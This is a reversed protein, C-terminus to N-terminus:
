TRRPTTRTSLTTKSKRVVSTKSTAPPAYMVRSVRRSSLASQSTLRQRLAKEVRDIKEVPDYVGELDVNLMQSVEKVFSKARQEPSQQRRERIKEEQDDGMSLPEVELSYVLGLAEHVSCIKSHLAAVEEMLRALRDRFFYAAEILSVIGGCVAKMQTKMRTMEPTGTATSPLMGLFNEHIDRSMLIVQNQLQGLQRKDFGHESEKVFIDYVQRYVSTAKHKLYNSSEYVVDKYYTRKVFLQSIHSIDESLQTFYVQLQHLHPLVKAQALKNLGSVLIEWSSLLRSSYRLMAASKRMTQTRRSANFHHNAQLVFPEFAAKFELFNRCLYSGTIETGNQQSFHLFEEIFIEYSERVSRLESCEQIARTTKASWTRRTPITTDRERSFSHPTKVLRKMPGTQPDFQKSSDPSYFISM